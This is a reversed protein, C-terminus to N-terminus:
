RADGLLGFRIFREGNHTEIDLFHFGLWDLWKLHAANGSWVINTLFGNRAAEARAFRRAARSVSACKSTEDTSLMWIRGYGQLPIVGFIAVVRGERAVTFTEIGEIPTLAAEPTQQLHQLETRDAVCMTQALEQRDADVTPRILVTM